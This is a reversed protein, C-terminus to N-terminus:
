LNAAVRAPPPKDKAAALLPGRSCFLDPNLTRINNSFAACAGVTLRGPLEVIARVEGPPFCELDFARGM